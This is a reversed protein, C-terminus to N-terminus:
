KPLKFPFCTLHPKNTDITMLVSTSEYWDKLLTLRTEFHSEDVWRVLQHKVFFHHDSRWTNQASCTVLEKEFGWPLPKLVYQYIAEDENDFPDRNINRLMIEFHKAPSSLKELEFYQPETLTYLSVFFLFLWFPWTVLLFIVVSILAIIKTRSM